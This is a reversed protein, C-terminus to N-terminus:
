YDPLVATMFYFLGLESVQPSINLRIAFQQLQNFRHLSGALHTDVVKIWQTGLKYKSVSAVCFIVM